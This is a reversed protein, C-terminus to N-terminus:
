LKMQGPPYVPIKVCTVQMFIPKAEQPLLDNKDKLQEQILTLIGSICQRTSEKPLIKPDFPRRLGEQSESDTRKRKRSLGSNSSESNTTKETKPDHTEQQADIEEIKKQQINSSSTEQAEINKVNKTKNIKSKMNNAKNIKSKSKKEPTLMYEELIKQKTKNVNEIKSRTIEGLNKSNSKKKTKRDNHVPIGRTLLQKVVKHAHKVPVKSIKKGVIKEKKKIAM